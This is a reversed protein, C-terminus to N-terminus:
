VQIMNLLLFMPTAVKERQFVDYYHREIYTKEVNPVM